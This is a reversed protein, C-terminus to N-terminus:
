RKVHPACSPAASAASALLRAGGNHTGEVSPNPWGTSPASRARVEHQLLAKSGLVRSGGTCVYRYTANHKVLHASARSLSESLSRKVSFAQMRARHTSESRPWLSSVAAFSVCAYREESGFWRHAPRAHSPCGVRASAVLQRLRWPPEGAAISPRGVQAQTHSLAVLSVTVHGM